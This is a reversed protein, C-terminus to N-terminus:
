QQHSNLRELQFLFEPDLRSKVLMDSGSKTISSLTNMNIRIDGSSDINSTHADEEHSVERSVIRSPMESKTLEPLKVDEGQLIESVVGLSRTNIEKALPQQTSITESVVPADDSIMNYLEKVNNLIDNPSMTQDSNLIIEITRKLGSFRTFTNKHNVSKAQLELFTQLGILTTAFVGLVIQAVCVSMLSSGCQSVNALSNSTFIACIITAPIGLLYYIHKYRISKNMHIKRVEDIQRLWQTLLKVTRSPLNSKPSM